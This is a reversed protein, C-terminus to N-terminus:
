REDLMVNCSIVKLDLSQSSPIAINDVTNELIGEEIKDKNRSQCCGM